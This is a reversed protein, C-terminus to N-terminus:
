NTDMCIDPYKQIEKTQLTQKTEKRLIPLSAILEESKKLTKQKRERRVRWQKNM